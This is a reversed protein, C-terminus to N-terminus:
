EAWDMTAGLAEGYNRPDDSSPVSAYLFGNRSSDVQVAGEASFHTEDRRGPEFPLEALHSQRRPIPPKLSNSAKAKGQVVRDSLRLRFLGPCPMAAM